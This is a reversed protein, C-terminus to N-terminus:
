GGGTTTSRRIWWQMKDTGVVFSLLLKVFDDVEDVRYESLLSGPQLSPVLLPGKDCSLDFWKVTSKAEWLGRRATVMVTGTCDAWGKTMIQYINLVTDVVIHTRRVSEILIWLRWMESCADYEEDVAQPAWRQPIRNAFSNRPQYEKATKWMQVVWQRLTPIQREASARHRVSGDFLRIFTYSFLSHVRSLHSLLGRPGPDSPADDQLVSGSSDESIQLITETVAPTGSFYAALTTFAGQLCAPMGKEYLRGHIFCNRGDKVWSRLMGEVERIFSELQAFTTCGSEQARHQKVWTDDQLFWLGPTRSINSTGPLTELFPQDVASISVPQIYPVTENAFTLDLDSPLIPDWEQFDLSAGLNNVDTYGQLDSPQHERAIRDRRRRKPQPYVCDVDRDVCRQCEPIKKDCKRKSEACAICAKQRPIASM